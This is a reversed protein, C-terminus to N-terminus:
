STEGTPESSKITDAVVRFATYIALDAAEEAAERKWDRPDRALDLRGYQRQGALLRRGLVLLVEHEEPGLEDLLRQWEEARTNM